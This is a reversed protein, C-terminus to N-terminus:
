KTIAGLIGRMIQKTVQSSLNKGVSQAVSSVVQEAISQDKKKKTGFISAIMGSLFDSSEEEQQAQEAKAEEVKANLIEFASENDVYASYYPYLDDQKVLADREGATLPTLQSKPPYIYAVEVPTPM